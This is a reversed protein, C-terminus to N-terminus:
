WHAPTKGTHRLRYCVMSNNHDCHNSSACLIGHGLGINRNFNRCFYEVTLFVTRHSIGIHECAFAILFALRGIAVNDCNWINWRIISFHIKWAGVTTGMKFNFQTIISVFCGIAHLVNQYSYIWLNFLNNHIFFFSVALIGTALRISFVLWYSTEAAIPTFATLIASGALTYGVVSRGGLWEALMGGPLSTVLYGWFYSGLLFSQESASWNYRPGYQFEIFIWKNNVRESYQHSIRNLPFIIVTDINLQIKTSMEFVLIRTSWNFQKLEFIISKLIMNSM